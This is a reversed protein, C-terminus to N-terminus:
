LQRVVRRVWRQRVHPRQLEAPLISAPAEKPASPPAQGLGAGPRAAVAPRLLLARSVRGLLRRRTSGAVLLPLLGDLWEPNM